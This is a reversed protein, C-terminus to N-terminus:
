LRTLVEGIEKKSPADFPPTWQYLHDKRRARGQGPQTAGADTTDAAAGAGRAPAPDQQLFYIGQGNPMWAVNRPLSDNAGAGPPGFFDDDANTVERLPRTAVM